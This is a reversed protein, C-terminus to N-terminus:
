PMRHTIRSCAHCSSTEYSGAASAIDYGDPWTGILPDLDSRFANDNVKAYLNAIAKAATCGDPRYPGFAAVIKRPPIHM